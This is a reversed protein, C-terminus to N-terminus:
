LALVLADRIKRCVEVTEESVGKVEGAEGRGRQGAQGATLQM